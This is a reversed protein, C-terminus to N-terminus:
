VKLNIKPFKEMLIIYNYKNKILEYGIDQIYERMDLVMDFDNNHSKIKKQLIRIEAKLKNAYVDYKIDLYDMLNNRRCIRSEKYPNILFTEMKKSIDNGLYNRFIYSEKIM